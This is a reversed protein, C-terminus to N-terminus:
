RGVSDYTAMLGADLAVFPTLSYGGPTLEKKGEDNM